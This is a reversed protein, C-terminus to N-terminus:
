KTLQPPANLEFRHSHVHKRTHTHTYAHTHTQIAPSSTIAIIFVVCMCVYYTWVLWVGSYQSPTTSSLSQVTSLVFEQQWASEITTVLTSM